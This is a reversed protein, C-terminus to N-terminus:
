RYIRGRKDIKAIYISKEKYDLINLSKLKKILFSPILWRNVLFKKKIETFILNM